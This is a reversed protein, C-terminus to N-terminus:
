REELQQILNDLNIENFSQIMIHSYPALIESPLTGVVGVVFANANKGAMVGQLSDEFVACRQPNVGIKEAGLLYGEPSPKSTTVKDGTVIFQFLEELHPIEEYLHAMKQNDSSTVLACPLEQQKLQILFEESYPLFSYHMKNELEHLRQAVLLRTGEDHYYDSLIKSLTSGKIKTEFNDIGTPFEKGIQAWIRTYESESDIIVGDLDFLFGINKKNKGM